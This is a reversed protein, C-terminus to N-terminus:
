PVRMDTWGSIDCQNQEDDGVAIVTGDSKVGVTLRGSGAVVVIDNSFVLSNM